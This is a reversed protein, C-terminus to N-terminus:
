KWTRVYSQLKALRHVNADIVCTPNAKQLEELFMDLNTMPLPIVIATKGGKSIIRYARPSLVEPFTRGIKQIENLPIRISRGFPIRAELHLDSLILSRATLFVSVFWDFLFATALPTVILMGWRFSEGSKEYVRFVWLVVLLLGFAPLFSGGYWPRRIELMRTVLM